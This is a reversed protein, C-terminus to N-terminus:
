VEISGSVLERKKLEDFIFKAIIENGRANVHSWDIFVSSVAHDFIHTASVAYPTEKVWEEYQKYAVTIITKLDFSFRNELEKEYESKTRLTYINPQLITILQAGKSVCYENAGNFAEITDMVALQSFERFSRPSFEGYMWRATELGIDSLGRLTRIPLPVLQHALKRSRHDIWGSDNDGFLFVAVDGSKLEVMDTLMRYRDVATGGNVGYNYVQSSDSFSNILRQLFSSITLQDPVEICFMTSGGFLYISQNKLFFSPANTTQRNGNTMLYHTGRFSKNKFILYSKQSGSEGSLQEYIGRQKQLSQGFQHLETMFAETFYDYPYFGSAKRAEDLPVSAGSRHIAFTRVNTTTASAVLRRLTIELAVFLLSITVTTVVVPLAFSTQLLFVFLATPLGLAFSVQFHRVKSKIRVKKLLWFTLPIAIAIGASIAVLLQPIM